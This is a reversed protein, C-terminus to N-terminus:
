GDVQRFKGCQGPDAAELKETSEGSLHDRRRVSVQNLPPDVHRPPHKGAPLRYNLYRYVGTEGVLAV